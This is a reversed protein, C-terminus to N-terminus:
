NRRYQEVIAVVAAASDRAYQLGGAAATKMEVGDGAVSFRTIDYPRECKMELVDNRWTSLVM